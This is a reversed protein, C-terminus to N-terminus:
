TKFSKKGFLQKGLYTSFMARWKAEIGEGFDELLSLDYSLFTKFSM